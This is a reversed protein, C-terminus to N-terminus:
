EKAKMEKLMDTCVDILGDCFGRYTMKDRIDKPAERWLKKMLKQARKDELIKKKYSGRRESATSIANAAQVTWWEEDFEYDKEFMAAQICGSKTRVLCICGEFDKQESFTEILTELAKTYTKVGAKEKKSLDKNEDLSKNVAEEFTEEDSHALKVEIKKVM